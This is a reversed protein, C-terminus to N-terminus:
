DHEKEKVEEKMSANLIEKIEKLIIENNFNMDRNDWDAEHYEENKRIHPPIIKAMEFM